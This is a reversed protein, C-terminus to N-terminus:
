RGHTLVLERFALALGAEGIRAPWGAAADVLSDGDLVLEVAGARGVIGIVIRVRGGGAEAIDELRVDVISGLSAVVPEIEARFRALFQEDSERM